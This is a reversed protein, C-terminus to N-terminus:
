DQFTEPLPYAFNGNADGYVMILASDILQQTIRDDAITFTTSVVPTSQELESPIWESAIVNANGDQGDQGDAGDQGPEGQEGQPGAPGVAGDEPSCSFAM